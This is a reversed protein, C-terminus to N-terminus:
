WGELLDAEAELRDEERTVRPAPGGGKPAGMVGNKSWFEVGYDCFSCVREVVKGMKTYLNLADNTHVEGCRDCTKERRLM